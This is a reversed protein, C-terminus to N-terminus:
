VWIGRMTPHAICVSEDLQAWSDVRSAAGICGFERHSPKLLVSPTQPRSHRSHVRIAPAAEAPYVQDHCRRVRRKADVPVGSRVPHAEGAEMRCALKSWPSRTAWMRVARATHPLGLLRLEKRRISLFGWGYGLGGPRPRPLPHTVRERASGDGESPRGQSATGLCPAATSRAASNCTPCCARDQALM